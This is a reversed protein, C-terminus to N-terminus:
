HVALLRGFGTFRDAIGAARLAAFFTAQNSTVVPLGTEAELGKILPLAPFDTCTILLADAGPRLVSLAHARVAQLPTEAIQIYEQPGGAGIGLGSIALVEFGLASLFAVEHDNLKQHYPTAIVLRKAGLANLAMVISAATTVAARAGFGVMMDPLTSPPNVMSGATCGYAVVDVRAQCLDSVAKRIDSQLAAKGAESHTDAHLPMRAAHVTVGEPVMAAWEAENVTNTPPVILGLRARPSYASLHRPPTSV